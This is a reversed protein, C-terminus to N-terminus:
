AGPSVVGGISALHERLDALGFFIKQLPTSVMPNRWAAAGMKRWDTLYGICYKGRAFAYGLEFAAGEDVSLGDLCILFVDCSDILALDYRFVALEADARAAGASILDSLIPGEQPLIVQVLDELSGRLSRNFESEANSFMSSGLFLKNV